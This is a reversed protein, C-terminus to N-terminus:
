TREIPITLGTVDAGFEGPAIVITGDERCEFTGGGNLAYTVVSTPRARPLTIMVPPDSATIMGDFTAKGDETLEYTIPTPQPSTM